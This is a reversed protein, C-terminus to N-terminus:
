ANEGAEHLSRIREREEEVSVGPETRPKPEGAPRERVSSAAAAANARIRNMLDQRGEFDMMELCMLAEEKREPSFLGLRYLQTALENRSLRTYPSEKMPRVLIDVVPEGELGEFFRGPVRLYERGGDPGTVRFIRDETYFQRINEIVLRCIRSFARYGARVMDRSLKSGAEQMAAIASAAMVGGSGGTSADRNGSVEKMETVAGDLVRLCNANLADVHIAKVNGDDVDGAVHVLKNTHDCFEAENIGASDRIFWRSNVCELTNETIANQLQDIRRQADKLRDIMGLGEPSHRVPYLSDLVFPYQGHRYIGESFAPDNESAFLIQSGCFTCLHLKQGAADRRRYYWDVVTCGGDEDTDNGTRSEAMIADALRPWQECLEERDVTSVYFVNRSQELSEIGPEWFLNLLNVARIDVDGRGGRLAGNWFVGYCATGNKLKELWCRDYVEEFGNQELIVPLVRSLIQAAEEDGPERPLVSLTPFSDMADAHKNAVCNFLWGSVSDTDRRISGTMPLSRMQWWAENEMMKRRRPWLAARYRDLTERASALQKRGVPPNKHNNREM